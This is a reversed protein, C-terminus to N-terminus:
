ADRSKDEFNEQTIDSPADPPRDEKSKKHKKWSKDDKTFVRGQKKPFFNSDRRYTKGM